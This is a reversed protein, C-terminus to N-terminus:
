IKSDRFSCIKIHLNEGGDGFIVANKNKNKLYITSSINGVHFDKAFGQLM